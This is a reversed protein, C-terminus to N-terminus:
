EEYVVNIDISDKWDQIDHRAEEITERTGGIAIWNDEMHEFTDGNIMWRTNLEACFGLKSQVIRFRKRM